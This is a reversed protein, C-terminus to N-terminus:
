RDALEALLQRVRSVIEDRARGYGESVAPVNWVRVPAHSAHAAPLPSFAVVAVAGELDASALPCPRAVPQLEEGALGAVAAPHNEADPDTGRSIARLPVGQQAALRNFHAAAVVSKASGHECVFLVTPTPQGTVM